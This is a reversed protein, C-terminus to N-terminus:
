TTSFASIQRKRSTMTQLVLAFPKDRSENSSLVAAFISTQKDTWTKNKQTKSRKAKKKPAM